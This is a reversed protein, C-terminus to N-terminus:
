IVGLQLKFSPRPQSEAGIRGDLRERREFANVSGDRAAAFISRRPRIAPIGVRPKADVRRDAGVRLPWSVCAAHFITEAREFRTIQGIQHGIVLIQVRRQRIIQKGYLNDSRHDATHPSIIPQSELSIRRIFLHRTEVLQLWLEKKTAEEEYLARFEPDAM